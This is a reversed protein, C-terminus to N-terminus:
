NTGAQPAPAAQVPSVGGLRAQYSDSGGFDNIATFSVTPSSGADRKIAFSQTEGPAIMVADSVRQKGAGAGLDIGTTSVHFASPNQVKLLPKGDVADVSWRLEVPAQAPTGPLGKPRFFLKIRQRIAFQLSNATDPQQPVEQVNVWMVSERDSPMSSAGGAYLVRLLQQSEAQMKALPPTIAFPVEGKDGPTNSEIWSQILVPNAGNRVVLGVEKNNGEFIVRTTNLSIAAHASTAGALMLALLARRALTHIFSVTM